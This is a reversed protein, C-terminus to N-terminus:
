VNFAPIIPTVLSPMAEILYPTKPAAISQSQHNSKNSVFRYQNLKPVM